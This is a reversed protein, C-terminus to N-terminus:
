GIPAQGLRGNTPPLQPPKPQHRGSNSGKGSEPQRASVSANYDIANTGGSVKALQADTIEDSTTTPSTTKANM